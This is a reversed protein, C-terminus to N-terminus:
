FRRPSSASVPLLLKSTASDISSVNSSAPRRLWFVTVSAISTFVLTARRTRECRQVVPAGIQLDTLERIIAEPDRARRRRQRQRPREMGLDTATIVRLKREALRFGDHIEAIAIGLAADGALFEQWSAYLHPEYGRGRLLELLMERHGPSSTALLSGAIVLLARVADRTQARLRRNTIRPM